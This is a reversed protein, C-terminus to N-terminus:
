HNSSYANLICHSLSLLQLNLWRGLGSEEIQRQFQSHLGPRGQVSRLGGTQAKQSRPNLYSGDIKTLESQVQGVYSYIGIDTELCSSIQLSKRKIADVRCHVPYNDQYLQLLLAVPYNKLLVTPLHEHVRFCFSLFHWIISLQYFQKFLVTKWCFQLICIKLFQM